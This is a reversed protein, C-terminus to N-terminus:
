APPRYDLASHPRETNYFTRWQEILIQAEKLTTFIEMNLCEDRLTGNFSASYGNGLTLRAHHVPDQGTSPHAM